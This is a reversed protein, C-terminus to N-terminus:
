IYMWIMMIIFFSNIGCLSIITESMECMCRVALIVHLAELTFGLIGPWGRGREGRTGRRAGGEESPSTREERLEGKGRRGRAAPRRAGRGAHEGAM